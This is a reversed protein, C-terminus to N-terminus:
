SAPIRQNNNKMCAEAGLGAEFSYEAGPLNISTPPRLNCSPARTIQGKYAWYFRGAVDSCPIYNKEGLLGPKQFPNLQSSTTPAALPPTLVNNWDQPCTAAESQAALVPGSGQAAAGSGTGM